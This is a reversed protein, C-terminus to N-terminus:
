ELGAILAAKEREIAEDPFSPERIIEGLLDIVIPLDDRLCYSSLMLTNNGAAAGISAGLDELTEAIDQADRTRTGKTLLQSLLSNM